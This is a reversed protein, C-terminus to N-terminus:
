ESSKEGQTVQRPINASQDKEAPLDITFISGSGEESQLYIKGGHSEVIGQIVSLGLGTGRGVEKTTFFPDFIRDHLELPIGEGTDSVGLRAIKGENERSTCILIRGGTSMADRANSLLNILIQSIQNPRCRIMPTDAKLDTEVLINDWSKLQNEILLLTDCVIEKLDAIQMEESASRAYELLSHVIKAARWGNREITDLQRLLASIDFNEREIQRTLSHSIGTIVQLPSNMEHAVGAALGGLSALKQSALLEAHIRKQDSVERVVCVVQEAEIIAVRAEFIEAKGSAALVTFEFAHIGGRQRAELVAKALLRVMESPLSTLAPKGVLGALKQSLHSSGPVVDLLRGDPDIRLILDPVAELLTRYRAESQRLAEQSADLQRIQEELMQNTLEVAEKAGISVLQAQKRTEIEFGLTQNTESIMEAQVLIRNFLLGSLSSVLFVLGLGIWRMSAMSNTSAYSVTLSWRGNPVDISVVVSEDMKKTASSAIVNLKGTEIGYSELTYEFGNTVLTNLQAADLLEPLRILTQTFGWFREEGTTTNLFVPYRGILAVGGQVVEFPGTLTLKRSQLASLSGGRRDLDELVNFGLAPENGVLPYIQTVIGDPALQLSSIGGYIQIMESALTDFDEIQGNNQRLVSALAYTTSLSGELQRQINNAQNIAIQRLNYQRGATQQQELLAVIVLGGATIFLFLALM